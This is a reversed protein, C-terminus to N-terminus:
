LHKYITIAIYNSNDMRYGDKAIGFFLEERQPHDAETPLESRGIGCGAPLLELVGVKRIM